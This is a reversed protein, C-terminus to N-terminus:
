AENLWSPLRLHAYRQFGTDHLLFCIFERKPKLYQADLALFSQTPKFSTIVILVAMVGRM